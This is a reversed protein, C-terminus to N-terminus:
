GDRKERPGDPPDVGLQAALQRLREQEVAQAAEVFGATALEGFDEIFGRFVAQLLRAAFEQRTVAARYRYSRRRGSRALLGKAALNNMVTAVTNFSLTRPLRGCVDRCSVEAEGRWLVEMIEAELEGLARAVGRAGLRVTPSWGGDLLAVVGQLM